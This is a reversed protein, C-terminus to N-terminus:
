RDLIMAAYTAEAVVKGDVKAEASFKWINGRQRQKVVEVRMQDGYRLESPPSGEHIAPMDGVPKLLFDDRAVAPADVAAHLEHRVAGPAESRRPLVDDVVRPDDSGLVDSSAANGAVRALPRPSAMSPGCGSITASRADTSGVDEGVADAAPPSM